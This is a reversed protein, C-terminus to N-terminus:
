VLIDDLFIIIVDDLYERFISHMLHMFTAPANTLGFPLVLFEFHGYRTRFAIKHVDSPHVCIQHYGSRLDIKTFLRAGRLRDLLEDIRPLPYRNHVTVRNLAKYDVCM